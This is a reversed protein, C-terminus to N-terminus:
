RRGWAATGSLTTFTNHIHHCHLLVPSNYCAGMQEGLGGRGVTRLMRQHARQAAMEATVQCCVVRVVFVDILWLCLWM